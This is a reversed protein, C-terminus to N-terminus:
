RRRRGARGGEQRGTAQQGLSGLVLEIAAIDPAPGPRTTDLARRMAALHEATTGCCGGIVKAGADRALRAYTAMIEPTGTYHILGDRFEPIGCNGKAVLIAENDAERMALITALLQNPGVGCNAGVAVPRVPLGAAMDVADRPTIGMMTRGGTDFSLTTVIPLGAVAAGRVAAAVEEAASMTEIWLVDVGGEALARAQEAFAAEADAPECPGLPALIEGTPGISGGVLVRRGAAEAARRAVRAAAVNLERVRDQHGHLKLRYRNGGFSNTLIIDSGAAVFGAHVAGVRDPHDVNWLEPNDGTVLGQAFLGTGMGGDALLAPRDALMDRLPDTM